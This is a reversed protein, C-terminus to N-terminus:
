VHLVVCIMCLDLDLHLFLYSPSSPLGAFPIGQVPIEEPQPEVEPEEPQIFKEIEREKFFTLLLHLITVCPHECLCM